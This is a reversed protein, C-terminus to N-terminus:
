IKAERNGEEIVGLGLRFNYVREIWQKLKLKSGEKVKDKYGWELRVSIEPLVKPSHRGPRKITRQNQLPEILCQSPFDNPQQQANDPQSQATAKGM